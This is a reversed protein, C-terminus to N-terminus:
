YGPPSRRNSTCTSRSCCSSSRCSASSGRSRTAGGGSRGGGRSGSSCPRSAGASAGPDPQAGPGLPRRGHLAQHPRAKGGGTAVRRAQPKTPKASKNPALPAKIVIRQEASFKPNCSTLTLQADLTNDVVQVDTPKVILQATMKYTFKGALTEVIIDDGPKLKDVDYFPHLYTTRHGAIAANGLTGPLPTDPYHGPGKKLDDRSVGEVFAMNLGIRPIKIVGEVEGEAPVPPAPRVPQTTTTTSGTTPTPRARVTTSTTHEAAYAQQAKAFDQKM